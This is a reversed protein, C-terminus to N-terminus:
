KKRDLRIMSPLGIILWVVIPLLKNGIRMFFRGGWALLYQQLGPLEYGELEALQQLTRAKAELTQLYLAALQGVFLVGWGILFLRARVKYSRCPTALILAVWISFGFHLLRGEWFPEARLRLQKNKQPNVANFEISCKIQGNEYSYDLADGTFPLGDLLTNGAFCLVQSYWPSILWWIPTVVAYALALLLLFRYLRRRQTDKSSKTM